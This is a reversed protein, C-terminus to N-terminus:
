PSQYKAQNATQEALTKSFAHAGSGDNKAVFYLYDGQPSIAAQISALGPNAIPGPPLGPHTYTNYPSTPAINKAQDTLSPWWNGPKGIAYQVTPDAFLGMHQNVRNWYVGAILAREDPVKAEREVISAITLTDYITHKQAAIKARMDPTVRKDFDDLMKQILDSANPSSASLLYTDPFLYGELSAKPPKDALFSYNWSPDPHQALNLFDQASDIKAAAAVDADEEVRRGEPFTVKIQKPLIPQELNAVIQDMSSGAAIQHLGPQFDTGGGHLKVYGLFLADNPILGKDQLDRAIDAASEGSSVQVGVLTGAPVAPASASASPVPSARNLVGRVSISAALILAGLIVLLLIGIPSARRTQRRKGPQPAPRV